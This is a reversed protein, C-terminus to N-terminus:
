EAHVPGICLESLGYEILVPMEQGVQFAFASTGSRAAPDSTARPFTGSQRPVLATSGTVSHLADCAYPNVSRGV